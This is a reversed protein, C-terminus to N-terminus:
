TTHKWYPQSTRTLTCMKQQFLHLMILCYARIDCSINHKICYDYNLIFSILLALYLLTLEILFCNTKRTREIYIQAFLFDYFTIQCGIYVFAVKFNNLITFQKTHLFSANFKTMSNPVALGDFLLQLQFLFM